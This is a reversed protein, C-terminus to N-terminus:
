ALQFHQEIRQAVRESHRYLAVIPYTGMFLGNVNLEANAFYPGLAAGADLLCYALSDFTGGDGAPWAGDVFASIRYTFADDGVRQIEVLPKM